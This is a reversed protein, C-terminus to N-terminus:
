FYYHEFTEFVAYDALVFDHYKKAILMNRDEFRLWFERSDDGQFM